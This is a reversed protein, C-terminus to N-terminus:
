PRAAASMFPNTAQASAAASRAVSRRSRAGSCRAKEYSSSTPQRPTRRSISTSSAAGTPGAKQMTPSGVEIATAVPCLPFVASPRGADPPLRVRRQRRERDVRHM